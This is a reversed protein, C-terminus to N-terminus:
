VLMAKVVGAGVQIDCFLSNDEEFFFSPSLFFIFLENKELRLSPELSM